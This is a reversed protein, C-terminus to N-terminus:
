TNSPLKVKGLLKVNILSMVFCQETVSVMKAYGKGLYFNLVNTQDFPVSLTITKYPYMVVIQKLMETGLTKKRWEETIAIVCLHIKTEKYPIFASLGVITDSKIFVLFKMSKNDWDLKVPYVKYLFDELIIRNKYVNNDLEYMDM